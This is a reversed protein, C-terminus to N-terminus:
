KDFANYSKKKIGRLSKKCFNEKRVLSTFSVVVVKKGKKPFSFFDSNKSRSLVSRLVCKGRFLHIKGWFTDYRKCYVNHFFNRTGILNSSSVKEIVCFFFFFYILHSAEHKESINTIKVRCFHHLNEQVKDSPFSLLSCLIKM